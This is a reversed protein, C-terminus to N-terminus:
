LVTSVMDKTTTKGNSGTIGVVKIDLQQLYIKALQQLAQLTDEVLILPIKTPPNPENKQWLIASAGKDIAANVFQHGNFREGILPIYLNGEKLTRTDTSVGEVTVSFLHPDSGESNLWKAIETLSRKVM